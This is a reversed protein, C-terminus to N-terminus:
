PEISGASPPSWPIQSVQAEDRLQRFKTAAEDCWGMQYASSQSVHPDM